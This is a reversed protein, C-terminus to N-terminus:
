EYSGHSWDTNCFLKIRLPESALIGKKTLFVILQVIVENMISQSYELYTFTQHRFSIKLFFNNEYKPM